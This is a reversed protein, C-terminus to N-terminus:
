DRAHLGSEFADLVGALHRLDDGRSESLDKTEGPDVALDFLLQRTKKHHTKEVLKLPYDIVAAKGPMRAFVPERSTADDGRLLPALTAGSLDTKAAGGLDAITAAVDLTSVARAGYRRAVSDGPLSVVFPVRLTEDYLEKGHGTSDHEDFGEGQTGAVVFATTQGRPSAIVADVLTGLQEDVFAVEGDYLGQKGKGFDLGQHHKYDAHADFLHVWLFLPRPDDKTKELAARAARVALPGTIGHEPHEETFVEDWNEFGQDFGRERSVWTFSSVGATVYGAAKMREALTDVDADVTPWQRRDHATEELRRGSVFPILARQTDTAAAYAHEFLTGHEALAALRPTTKQEYGYPQTHDARVTDLTILVISPKTTAPPAVGAAVDASAATASSAVDASVVGAQGAPGDKGDCDQDIGDGIPDVAGPRITPDGEDCDRGGFYAGVGDGDRDTWRELGTMMTAALGGGSKMSAGLTSSMSLWSAGVVFLGAAGFAGHRRARELLSSPLDFTAAVAAALAFILVDFATAALMLTDSGGDAAGLLPLAVISLPAVSLVALGVAIARASVGRQTLWRGTALLRKAVLAVGIAVLLALVGFTTGGLGRHHTASKLIAGLVVLIPATLGIWLALGTATSRGARNGTVMRFGRGAAPSALCTLVLIPLLVAASALWGGVFSGGQRAARLAAPISGVIAASAGLTCAEHLAALRSVPGLPPMSPTVARAPDSDSKAEASSERSTTSPTPVGGSAQPSELTAEDESM